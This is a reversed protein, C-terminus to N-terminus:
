LLARGCRRDARKEAEIQEEIYVNETEKARRWNWFKALDVLSQNVSIYYRKGPYTTNVERGSGSVTQDNHSWNGTATVQPLFEGFSQEKQATGINLKLGAAKLKPDGSLAQQYVSVLDDALAQGVSSVALALAFSWAPKM